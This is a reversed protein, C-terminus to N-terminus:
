AVLPNPCIGLCMSFVFMLLGFMQSPILQTHCFSHYQVISQQDSVLSSFYVSCGIHGNNLTAAHNHQSKPRHGAYCPKCWVQHMLVASNKTCFPIETCTVPSVLGSLHVFHGFLGFLEVSNSFNTFLDVFNNVLLFIDVFYKGLASEIFKSCYKHVSNLATMCLSQVDAHSPTRHLPHFNEMSTNSPMQCLPHFNEMGVPDPIAMHSPHWWLTKVLSVSEPAGFGGVM